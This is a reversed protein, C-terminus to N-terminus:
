THGEHIMDQQVQEMKTALDKKEQFVNGFEEKNWIKLKNKIYKINQQFIYM